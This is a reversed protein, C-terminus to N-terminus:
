EATDSARKSYGAIDAFLISADDYKDAIINRSPDKLREAIMAPLINALLTESRQYEDEMANESRAIERMAFSITAVVIVSAAIASRVFGVMLTWHPGLGRDPPVLVELAITAAIGMAVIASSMVIREIGFVLVALSASVLYYFQLGSGTGINFCIFTVSLYAFFFFAL